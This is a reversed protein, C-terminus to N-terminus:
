KGHNVKFITLIQDHLAIFGHMVVSKSLYLLFYKTSTNICKLTKFTTDKSQEHCACMYLQVFNYIKQFHTIEKINKM